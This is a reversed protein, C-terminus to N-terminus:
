KEDSKKKLMQIFQRAMERDPGNLKSM